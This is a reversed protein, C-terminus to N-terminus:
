NRWNSGALAPGASLAVLSVAVLLALLIRRPMVRRRLHRPPRVAAV